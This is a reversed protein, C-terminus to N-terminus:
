GIGHIILNIAADVAQEPTFKEDWIQYYNNLAPILYSDGVAILFTNVVRTTVELDLEPSIEGRAQAAELIGYVMQRLEAAIPRVVREGFEENGQYAAMSFFKVFGNQSQTWEEGGKLYALLAERLPMAALMPTYFRFSEVVTQVVLEVAFSLLGERNGFYQYLSGISVGAREAIKKINVEAPGKEGAEELIAGLVAQQREADLRRFTRTVLGRKEFSLIIMQIQSWDYEM